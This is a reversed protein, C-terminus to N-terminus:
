NDLDWFYYNVHSTWNWYTCTYVTSSDICKCQIAFVSIKFVISINFDNLLGFCKNKGFNQFCYKKWDWTTELCCPNVTYLIIHAPPTCTGFVTKKDAHIPLKSQIDQIRPYMYRPLKNRPRTSNANHSYWVTEQVFYRQIFAFKFSTM